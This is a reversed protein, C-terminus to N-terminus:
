RIASCGGAATCLGPYSLLGSMEILCPPTRPSCGGFSLDFLAPSILIIDGTIVLTMAIPFVAGTVYLYHDRFKAVPITVAGFNRFVYPAIFIMIISAIISPYIWSFSSLDIRSFFYLATAWFAVFSMSKSLFDSSQTIEISQDESEVNKAVMTPHLIVLIITRAWKADWRFLSKIIYDIMASKM